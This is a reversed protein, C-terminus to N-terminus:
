SAASVKEFGCGLIGVGCAGCKLASKEKERQLALTKEKKAAEVKELQKKEKAREKAKQRKAKKKAAAKAAKEEATLENNTQSSQENDKKPEADASPKSNSSVDEAKTRAYQITAAHEWEQWQQARWSDIEDQASQLVDKAEKEKSLATAADEKAKRRANIQSRKRELARLFYQQRHRQLRETHDREEMLSLNATQRVTELMESPYDSQSPGAQQQAACNDGNLHPFAEQVERYAAVDAAEFQAEDDDIIRM